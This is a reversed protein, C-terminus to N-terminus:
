KQKLVVDKAIFVYKKIALLVYTYLLDGVYLRTQNHSYMWLNLKNKLAVFLVLRPVLSVSDATCYQVTIPKYYKGM